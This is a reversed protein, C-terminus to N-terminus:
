FTISGNGTWKYVRYGGSTTVTPSGTTSTALPFVDPYRIIVIGSGGAGGTTAVYGHAGGGGSGTNVVGALGNRGSNEGGGQGGNQLNVTGSAVTYSASLNYTGTGGTGTGFSTIQVANTTQGTYIWQGVLVAGSTV